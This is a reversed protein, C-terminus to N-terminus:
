SRASTSETTTTDLLDNEFSAEAMKRKAQQHRIRSSRRHRDIDHKVAYEMKRIAQLVCDFASEGTSSVHIHGRPIVEVEIRCVGDFKKSDKTEDELRVTVGAIRADIRDLAFHIKREIFERVMEPNKIHKTKIEIKM